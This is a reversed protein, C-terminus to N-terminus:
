EPHEFLVEQERKRLEAQLPQPLNSLIECFLEREYEFYVFESWRKRICQNISNKEVSTLKKESLYIMKIAKDAGFWRARIVTVGCDTFDNWGHEYRKGVVHTIIKTEDLSIWIFSTYVTVCILGIACLSMFIIIPLDAWEFFMLHSKIVFYFGILCLAVVLAVYIHTKSYHYKKM